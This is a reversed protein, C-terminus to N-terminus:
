QAQVADLQVRIEGGVVFSVPETRDAALLVRGVETKM